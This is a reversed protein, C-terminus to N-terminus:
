AGCPKNRFVRQAPLLIKYFFRLVCTKPFLHHAIQQFLEDLCQLLLQAIIMLFWFSSSIKRSPPLLSAATKCSTACWAIAPTEARSSSSKASFSIKFAPPAGENLPYLTRPAGIGYGPESQTEIFSSTTCPKGVSLTKFAPSTTPNSIPICHSPSNVSVASVKTVWVSNLDVLSRFETQPLDFLSISAVLFDKSIPM